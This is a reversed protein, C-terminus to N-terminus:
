LDPRLHGNLWPWANWPRGFRVKVANDCAPVLQPRKRALVKRCYGM